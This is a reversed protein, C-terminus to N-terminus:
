KKAKQATMYNRQKSLYKMEFKSNKKFIYRLSPPLWIDGVCTM